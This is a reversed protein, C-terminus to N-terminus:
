CCGWPSPATMTRVLRENPQAPKNLCAAFAEYAEPSVGILQTREIPSKRSTPKTLVSPQTDM